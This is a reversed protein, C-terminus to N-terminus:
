VNLSQCLKVLLYFIRTYKTVFTKDVIHQYSTDYYDSTISCAAICSADEYKQKLSSRWNQCNM